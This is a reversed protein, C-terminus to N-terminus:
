KFEYAQSSWSANKYGQGSCPSTITHGGGRRCGGATRGRAHRQTAGLHRAPVPAAPSSTASAEELRHFATGRSLFTGPQTATPSLAHQGAQATVQARLSAFSIRRSSFPPSLAKAARWCDTAPPALLTAHSTIPPPHYMTDQAHNSSEQAALDFKPRYLRNHVLILPRTFISSQITLLFPSTYPSPPVVALSRWLLCSAASQQKHGLLRSRAPIHV